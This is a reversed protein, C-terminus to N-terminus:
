YTVDKDLFKSTLCAAVKLKKFGLPDMFSTLALEKLCTVSLEAITRDDGGPDYEDGLGILELPITSMAACAKPMPLGSSRFCDGIPGKADTEEKIVRKVIRTLDSETLRIIKKM